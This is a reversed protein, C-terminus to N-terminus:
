EHKGGTMRLVKSLPKYLVFTILANIGSKLLNFPIIAPVLLAVVAERPTGMFIPTFILNWVVMTATMALAGCILAIAAGKRTHNRKYILGAVGAFAATAFFHMMIGIIGSAASVTIGQVVCAVATIILGCVPGLMFTGILIPVDAPDYELFSAAPFLPFHILAVLLVSMAALVAMQVLTKTKSQEQM